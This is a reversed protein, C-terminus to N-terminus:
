GTGSGGCGVPLRPYQVQRGCNPPVTPCAPASEAPEEAPKDTTEAQSNDEAPAEASEEKPEETTEEVAEMPEGCCEPAEEAETENGCNKCKIKLFNPKTFNIQNEYFFQGMGNLIFDHWWDIQEKSLYGAKIEITPSCAAKWYSPIEMLGLHFIFNDLDQPIKKEINKIVLQPHFEIDPSIRFDFFIKLDNRFIEYSYGEYVFKPYKKRLVDVKKM